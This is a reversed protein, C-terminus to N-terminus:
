RQRIEVAWRWPVVQGGQGEQPTTAKLSLTHTQQVGRGWAAGWAAPSAGDGWIKRLRTVGNAFYETLLAVLGPRDETRAATVVVAIRLGLTDVVLHRKRGTSKKHGDCGIDKHQTATTIRQADM